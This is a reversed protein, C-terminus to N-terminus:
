QRLWVRHLNVRGIISPEFDEVEVRAAEIVSGVYGFVMPADEYIIAQAQRYLEEREASYPLGAAKTLIEDLEPNSYRSYNGRDDTKLKPDTLGTPDLFSNGWSTFTMMREGALAAERLIAMDWGRVSANIGIEQLQSAAAQAVDQLDERADIVLDFGDAYGADALLEKAKEPDYGYPKISEDLGYEGQLFSTAVVAGYGGLVTEVILEIDIAYNMAQRVRKDDFPKMQCNMEFMFLNTGDAVYVETNADQELQPVMTPPLGQIIHVQGGQLAAIRTATEPIFDFVVQKAPAPGANPIDPSGGYYDDFRELVIREDITGEVFKFPGTGMPKTAIDSGVAELYSKSVIQHHNLNMLFPPIPESFTFRVTEDDVIDVSELPGLLGKRPSTEGEMAGEIFSRDFTFKVDEVTLPSGDHFKVDQRIKFDWVTADENTTWSSAIEPVITGDPTRTVLGDYINRVVTETYRDRHNAPDLTVITSPLGVVITYDPEPTPDPDPTTDQDDPPDPQSPSCAVALVLMLVLLAALIKVKKNRM